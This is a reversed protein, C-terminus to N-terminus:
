LVAERHKNSSQTYTLQWLHSPTPTRTLTGYPDDDPNYELANRWILDIDHLYERVTIYKQLDIKSLVTSLDMPQKVVSHYDPM